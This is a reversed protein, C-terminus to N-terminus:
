LGAEENEVELALELAEEFTPAAVRFFGIPTVPYWQLVWITDTALSRELAAPDRFDEKLDVQELYQALPLYSGKHENCEVCLGGLHEPFRIM